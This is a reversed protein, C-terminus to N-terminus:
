RWRLFTKTMMTLILGIMHTILNIKVILRMRQSIGAERGGGKNGNNGEEVMSQSEEGASCVEGWSPVESDVNDGFVYDCYWGKDREDYKGSDWPQWQVFSHPYQGEM